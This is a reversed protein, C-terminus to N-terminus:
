CNRVSTASFVASTTLSVHPARVSTLSPLQIQIFPDILQCSVLSALPFAALAFM